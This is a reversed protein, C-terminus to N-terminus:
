QNCFVHNGIVKQVNKNEGKLSFYLTEFPLIDTEGNLVAEVNRRVQDTPRAAEQNRNKWTSFQIVGNSKQSLVEYVTDPYDPSHLRNCIVEVVAQQGLDGEGGSELMTIRAIMDKEIVDLSLNWRNNNKVIDKVEEKGEPVEWSYETESKAELIQSEATYVCASVTLTGGEASGIHFRIIGVLLVIVALNIFVFREM